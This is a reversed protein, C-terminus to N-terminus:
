APVSRHKQENPDVIAGAYDKRDATFRLDGARPITLDAM